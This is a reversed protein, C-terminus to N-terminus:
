EDPTKWEAPPTYLRVKPEHDWEDDDFGLVAIRAPRGLSQYILEEARDIAVEVTLAGARMDRFESFSYVRNHDLDTWGREIRVRNADSVTPVVLIRSWFPFEDIREGEEVWQCLKTTKGAQRPWVIIKM